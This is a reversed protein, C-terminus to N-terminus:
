MRLNEWRHLERGSTTLASMMLAKRELVFQSDRIWLSPQRFGWVVRSRSSTAVLWAEPSSATPATKLPPRSLPLGLRASGSSAGGSLPALLVLLILAPRVVGRQDGRSIACGPLGLLSQRVVEVFEHIARAWVMGVGDFM